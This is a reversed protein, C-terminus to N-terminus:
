FLKSGNRSKSQARSHQVIQAALKAVEKVKSSAMLKSVNVVVNGSANVSYYVETNKPESSYAM